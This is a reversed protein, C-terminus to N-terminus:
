LCEFSKRDTIDYVALCGQSDRLYNQNVSQFKEQGATDWISLKVQQEDLLVVKNVIDVGVTCDTFQNFVDEVFRLIISTKGSASDGITTIKM